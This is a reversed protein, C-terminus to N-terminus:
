VHNPLLLTGVRLAYEDDSRNVAACFWNFGDMYATYALETCMWLSLLTIFLNYVRMFLTLDLAERDTSLIPMMERVFTSHQAGKMFKPGYHSIVLYSSVLVLTPTWSGM